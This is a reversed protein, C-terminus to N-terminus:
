EFWTVSRTAIEELCEDMLRLNRPVKGTFIQVATLTQDARENLEVEIVDLDDLFVKSQEMWKTLQAHM